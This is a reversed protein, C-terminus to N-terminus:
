LNVVVFFSSEFNDHEDEIVSCYQQASRLKTTLNAKKNAVAYAFWDPNSEISVVWKARESLYLSSNGSGWEFV